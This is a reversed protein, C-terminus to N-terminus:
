KDKNYKKGANGHSKFRHYLEQTDLNNYLTHNVQEIDIMKKSLRKEWDKTIPYTDLTERSSKKDGRKKERNKSGPPRGTPNSIEGEKFPM